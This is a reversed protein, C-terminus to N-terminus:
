NRFHTPAAASRSRAVSTTRYLGWDGASTAVVEADFLSEDRVMFASARSSRARIRSGWGHWVGCLRRRESDSVLTPSMYVRRWRADCHLVAGNAMSVLMLSGALKDEEPLKSQDGGVAVLLDIRRRRCRCRRGRRAIYVNLGLAVSWRPEGTTIDLATLYGTYSAYVVTDDVVLPVSIAAVALSSEWLAAGTPDIAVATAGYDTRRRLGGRGGGPDGDRRWGRYGLQGPRM